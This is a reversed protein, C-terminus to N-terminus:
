VKTMQLKQNLMKKTEYNYHTIKDIFLVKMIVSPLLLVYAEKMPFYLSTWQEKIENQYEIRILLIM